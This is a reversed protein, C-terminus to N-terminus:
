ATCRTTVSCSDEEGYLGAMILQEATGHGFRPRNSDVFFFFLDNPGVGASRLCHTATAERPLLEASFYSKDFRTTAEWRLGGRDRRQETRMRQRRPM